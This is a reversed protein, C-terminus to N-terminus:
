AHTGFGSKGVAIRLVKEFSDTIKIIDFTRVAYARGNAGLQKRLQPDGRLRAAAAVFIAEDHPSVVMGAYERAVNRAALNGSPAALLIPRGACLYSQVKSPVSSTGADAELLGVLVDGTALVEAFRQAPQLPLLRLSDLRHEEKAAELQKMGVGQGVVVVCASSDCEQALRVLFGPSHRRGLTGAYLFVFRDDLGHERSWDNEKTVPPLDDFSAWNEITYVKDSSRAWTSALPRFDDTIIVVADSQRLQRRELFRYYWGIGVGAFGLQKSLLMGAAISYFDQMWYVFSAQVAKSARIIAAQAETPTNGSIVVDPRLDRILRTARRGYKVDNVHRAILSSKNYPRGISIEAFHLSFEDKQSHLVGKPGPDEAFYAHTVNHGRAALTRSLLVQFPHGAYDHVLVKM